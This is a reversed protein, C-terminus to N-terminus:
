FDLYIEARRNARRGQPNDEGSRTFNPQRPEARGKAETVIQAPDVGAEVLYHKVGKARRASLLQNYTDTGLADTHGSLTLKRGPDSRLARAVIDLQRGARPNIQDGDFSFYLVLTDGGAPNRIIPTYHIDGGALRGAYDALLKEMNVESVSWRAAADKRTVVLSFEASTAPDDSATVPVIFGAHHERSILARLPKQERLRYDGEEFLICLGAITADTVTAPDVLNRAAAFDQQLTAELFAHAVGLADEVRGGGDAAPLHLKEVSWTGDEGKALDIFLRGPTSPDLPISWRSRRNIELEGVERVPGPQLKLRGNALLDVIRGRDAEAIAGPGLLRDLEVLDGAALTRAVEDVLPRPRAAQRAAPRAPRPDTIGPPEEPAAPPEPPVLRPRPTGTTAPPPTAAQEATPAAEGAPKPPTAPRRNLYLLAVLLCLLISGVFFPKTNRNVVATM